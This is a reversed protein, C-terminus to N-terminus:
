SVNMSLARAKAASEEEKSMVSDTEYSSEIERNTTLDKAAVSLRGDPGLRVTIQIPSNRPLPRDFPLEARGLEKTCQALDINQDPKSEIQNEMCRITAGMQGDEHTGFQKTAEVPVKQNMIVLNAVCETGSNDVVVVGFSKSSVNTISKSMIKQLAPLAMGEERALVQQQRQVVNEDVKSLDITEANAGTEDAIRIKIKEELYCKHGFIAAGKAVALNPDHQKVEFPYGALRNKVQPMYTSGGVLLLRDIKVYGKDRARQLMEEMLSITQELLRETLGDFEQRSLEVKVREAGFRVACLVSERTSLAVKAKEAANLLEQYTEPDDLLEQAATGKEAQFRNALHEVLIDDWDKGGLQDNGGTAIVNIEQGKLEILTIDFTGGGLDYILIVQDKEQDMGYAIAAATPEPIIYQVNLGAINGAKETALKQDVGFYAPCTIVVNEVKEGTISEADLALKRLIYASIEPAKFVKDFFSFEVDAIGMVRKVTSVVLDKNVSAVAKAQEGVVVNTESEFYVVSPTTQQNESNAIIEPRGHEDVRAICSYTTGLDIGYVRKAEM